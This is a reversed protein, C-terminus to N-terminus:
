KKEKPMQGAEPYKTREDQWKKVEDPKNTAKYLEIMRDLAETLRVKGKPPITKERQKMGIYGALLLPEAESYKKQSLLSGGLMSKTRFTTWADPRAKERIALCERLLPEAKEGRDAKAYFGALDNMSDLTDPHEPGLKAKRLALTEELLPLALNLKGYDRLVVGLNAISNLTLPHDPGLKSKSLALVEEQLELADAYRGLDFYSSALSHMSELTDPHDPGLKAKRLALTEERFKLADANRALDAYSKALESMSWLTDPHDPGLKAKCLALMGERLELADVYRGLSAYTSALDGMSFLTVRHDPGLKAKMLPLTEELLKLSDAYRGLAHYCWALAGMTYLTGPHDPGLKAKMLPLTEELLKLSDTYRGLSAFSNAVGHMSELTDAHDPGLKAKRLSLTEEHLKCGDAYRGLALYTEALVFMTWLTGPHDPGLKVKQLALTEEGLKRAETYRGLDFYSDALRSMSELTDPHDSGLYHTLLSRAREFLEAAIKGEDLYSFTRGLTLCLRAEILPQQAFRQTVSPLAAEVAARLSVDHGLGGDQGQPRAAAFVKDEVFGLVAKTTEAEENARRQQEEAEVMRQRALGEATRARILGITTGAMGALLAFLLLGAALVPGKNRKLFKKLRYTASPPCAWVADGALYRQVDMAFSNATDYRRNRDKELSKLAIWDLEGRMLKTLKAPDTHRQASISPLAEDTSLRTSPKPPEQERVLRLMELMAQEKLRKRNLPTSGTLLEYLLVGLAYIDSRTDIDQNNLEAQEPSMYELTGIIAGFETYMTKDTLQQATAKAVGFDIVKVVPRGDYPAVLVNSPKIDRHIIGKQHAHQIATCVSVFLELRQKPSLRHEDCYQTIPTGKVLEMVFFPRQGAIGADYIRAINPHDMLALAQREAEFRAVIKASNMSAKVLKLAIMRRVPSQQEAMWVTGMGGEGIKQLLKYPGIMTGSKDESEANPPASDIWNGAPIDVTAEIRAAPKELFSKEEEQLRLLEEVQKRLEANNGCAGELYAEREAVTKKKLASAFILSESM